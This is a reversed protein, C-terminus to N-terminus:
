SGLGGVVPDTSSQTGDPHITVTWDLSIGSGPLNSIKLEIDGSEEISVAYLPNFVLPINEAANGVIHPLLVQKAASAMGSLAM